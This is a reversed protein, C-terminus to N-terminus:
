SNMRHVLLSLFAHVDQVSLNEVAIGGEIGEVNELLTQISNRLSRPPSLSKQKSDSACLSKKVTYLCSQLFMKFELDKSKQDENDIKIKDYKNRVLRESIKQDEITKELQKQHQTAKSLQVCLREKENQLDITRELLDKIRHDYAAFRKVISEYEIQYKKRLLGKVYDMEKRLAKHNTLLSQYKAFLIKTRGQLRIENLVSTRKTARGFRDLSLINKQRPGTCLYRTLTVGKSPNSLRMYKHLMSKMRPDIIRREYEEHMRRVETRILDIEKRHELTQRNIDERAQKDIAEMMQRTSALEANLMSIQNQAFSHSSCLRKIETQYRDKLVKSYDDRSLTDLDPQNNTSTVPENQENTNQDVGDLVSKTSDGDHKIQGFSGYEEIDQM